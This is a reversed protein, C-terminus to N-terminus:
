EVADKKEAGAELIKFTNKSVSKWRKSGDRVEM